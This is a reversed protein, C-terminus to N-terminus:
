NMLLSKLKGWSNVCARTTLPNLDSTWRCSGRVLRPKLLSIIMFKNGYKTHIFLELFEQFFPRPCHLNCGLSCFKIKSRGNKILPILMGLFVIIPNVVFRHLKHSKIVPEVQQKWILYNSDDLKEAITNSFIQSHFPLSDSHTM